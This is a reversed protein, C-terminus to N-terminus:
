GELKKPIDAPHQVTGKKALKSRASSSKRVDPTIVIIVTATAGENRRLRTPLHVIASIWANLKRM